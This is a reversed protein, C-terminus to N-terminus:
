FWRGVQAQYATYEAGYADTLYREERQIVLRMLLVLVIPLVLLPWLSNVLAVGGLYALTMGAYM